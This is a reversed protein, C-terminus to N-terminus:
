ILIIESPDHSVSSQLLSAYLRIFLIYNLITNQTNLYVKWLDERRYIVSRHQKKALRVLWLNLEYGVAPPFGQRCAELVIRGDGSRLDTISIFRERHAANVCVCEESRVQLKLPVQRFGSMLIGAWVAYVVLGTGATLQLIQWGGLVAFPLASLPDPLLN